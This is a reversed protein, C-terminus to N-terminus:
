FISFKEVYSIRYHKRYIYHYFSSFLSFVKVTVVAPAKCGTKHKSGNCPIHVTLRVTVTEYLDPLMELYENDLGVHSAQLSSSRKAYEVIRNLDHNVEQFLKPQALIVRLTVDKVPSEPRQVNPSPRPTSENSLRKVIRQEGPIM